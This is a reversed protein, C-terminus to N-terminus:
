GDDEERRLTELAEHNIINENSLSLIMMTALRNPKVRGNEWRNVTSFSVHLKKAFAVQTLGLDLRIQKVADCIEM